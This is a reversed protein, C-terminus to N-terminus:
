EVMFDWIWRTRIASKALRKAALAQPGNKGSVTSSRGCAASRTRAVQMTSSNIAM